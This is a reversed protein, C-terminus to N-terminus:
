IGTTEYTLVPSLRYGYGAQAYSRPAASGTSRYGREFLYPSQARLLLSTNEAAEETMGYAASFDAKRGQFPRPKLRV